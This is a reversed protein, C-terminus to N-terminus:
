RFNLEVKWYDDSADNTANVDMSAPFAQGHVLKLTNGSEDILTIEPIPTLKSEKLTYNKGFLPVSITDDTGDVFSGSRTGTTPDNVMPLGKQFTITYSFDKIRPMSTVTNAIMTRVYDFLADGNLKISETVKEKYPSGNHTQTKILDVLYPLQAKKLIKNVLERRQNRSDLNQTDYIWATESTGTNGLVKFEIKRRKDPITAKFQNPTVELKSGYDTWAKQLVPIDTRASLGWNQTEKRYNVDATYTSLNTNPLQIPKGTATDIYIKTDYISDKDTDVEFQAIFNYNDSSDGSPPSRNTNYDQRNSTSSGEFKPLEINDLWYFGVDTIGDEGTDTGSFRFGYSNSNETSIFNQHALLLYVRGQTENIYPTYGYIQNNMGVTSTIWIINNREGFIGTKNILNGDDLYITGDTILDAYSPTPSFTRGNTTISMNADANCNLAFTTGIRTCTYNVKRIDVNVTYPYSPINLPGRDTNLRIQNGDRTLNGSFGNLVFDGTLIFNVDATSVKYYFTAGDLTFTSGGQSMSTLTYYFPVKHEFGADDKYVIGQASGSTASVGDGATFTTFREGKNAWGNFQVNAYGYGPTSAPLGALFKFDPKTTRGDICAQTLCDETKPWLPSTFDRLSEGINNNYIVITKIVPVTSSNGFGTVAQGSPTSNESSPQTCGLLLILAIAFFVIKFKM